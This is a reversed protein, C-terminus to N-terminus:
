FRRKLLYGLMLFLLNYRNVNKFLLSKIYNSSMKAPVDQTNKLEVENTQVGVSVKSIPKMESISSKPDTSENGTTSSAVEISKIGTTTLEVSKLEVSGANLTYDLYKFYVDRHRQAEDPM